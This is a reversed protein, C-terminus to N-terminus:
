PRRGAQGGTAIAALIRDASAASRGQAWRSSSIARVPSRRSRKPSRRWRPCSTSPGARRVARGVGCAHRADRGAVTVRRGSLHRDARSRGRRGARRRIRADAAADALVPAAPVGRRCSPRHRCPCRRHRRCDRDPSARLRGRGDRGESRRAVPLPARRRPVGGAGCRDPSVGPRGRSRRRHRRAREAPQPPRARAATARRHDRRGTGRGRAPRHVAIRIGRAGRRPGVRSAPRARDALGYTMVRRTIRPLLARVPEDDACAVVAGYFPVKNAFEVFAQQLADWTGYADM